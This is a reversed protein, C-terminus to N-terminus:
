SLIGQVVAHYRPIKRAAGEGVKIEITEEIKGQEVMAALTEPLAELDFEYQQLLVELVPLNIGHDGSCALLMLITEAMPDKSNVSFPTVQKFLDIKLEVEPVDSFQPTELM